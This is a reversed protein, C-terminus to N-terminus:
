FPIFGLPKHGNLGEDKRKEHIYKDLARVMPGIATILYERIPLCSAATRGLCLYEPLITPAAMVEKLYLSLAYALEVLLIGLGYAIAWRLIEKLAEWRPTDLEASINRVPMTAKFYGM